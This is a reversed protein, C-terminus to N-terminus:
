LFTNIGFPNVDVHDIPTMPATNPQMRTFNGLWEVMGRVQALPAEEGTMSWFTQWALGHNKLDLALLGGLVVIVVGIGVLWRLSRRSLYRRPAGRGTALKDSM